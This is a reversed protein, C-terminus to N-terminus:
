HQRTVTGSAESERVRVFCKRIKGFRLSAYVRGFAYYHLVRGDPRFGYRLFARSSAVNHSETMASLNFSTLERDMAALIATFVGLRRCEKKVFVMEIVASDPELKIPLRTKGHPVVYIGRTEWAFGATEGTERDRAIWPRSGARFLQEFKERRAEPSIWPYQSTGEMCRLPETVAKSEDEERVIAFRNCHEDTPHGRGPRNADLTFFRKDGIGLVSNLRLFRTVANFFEVFRGRILYGSASRIKGFFSM